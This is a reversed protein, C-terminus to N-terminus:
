CAASACASSWPCPAQGAPTWCSPPLARGEARWLHGCREYAVAQLSAAAPTRLWRWSPPNPICLRGQVGHSAELPLQTAAGSALSARHQLLLRIGAPKLSVPARPTCLKGQVGHSAAHPQQTATSGALIPQLLLLSGATRLSASARPLIHRCPPAVQQRRAVGQHTTTCAQCHGRVAARPCLLRGTLTRQQRQAGEWAAQPCPQQLGPLNGQVTQQLASLSAGGAQLRCPVQCSHAVPLEGQAARHSHSSLVRGRDGQQLRRSKSPCTLHQSQRCLLMRM